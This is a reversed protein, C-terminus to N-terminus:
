QKANDRVMGVLKDYLDKLTKTLETDLNLGSNIRGDYQAKVCLYLNWIEKADFQKPM